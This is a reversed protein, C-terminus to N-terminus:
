GWIATMCPGCRIRRCLRWTPMVTTIRATSDCPSTIRHTTRRLRPNPSGTPRVGSQRADTMLPEGWSPASAWAARYAAVADGAKEDGGCDLGSVTGVSCGRISTNPRGTSGVWYVEPANAESALSYPTVNDKPRAPWHQSSAGESDYEGREFALQDVKLGPGGAGCGPPRDHLVDGPVAAGPRV